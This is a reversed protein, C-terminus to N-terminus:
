EGVRTIWVRARGIGSGGGLPVITGALTGRAMVVSVAVEHVLRGPKLVAAQVLGPRLPVIRAVVTDGTAVVLTDVGNGRLGLAAGPEGAWARVVGATGPALSGFMGVAPAAALVGPDALVVAGTVPLLQHHLPQGTTADRVWLSLNEGYVPTVGLEVSGGPTVTSTVGAVGWGEVTVEVQGAVSEAVGTGVILSTTQGVPLALPTATVLLPRVIPLMTRHPLLDPGTVTLVLEGPEAPPDSLYITARGLEDTVASGLLRGPATLTVTAGVTDVQVAFVPVGVALTGAHSVELPRPRRTRVQLSCDGLINYQEVLQRGIEGPYNDLVKMIGHQCLAGIELARGSVLLDTTEEQMLTPPIWPTTTSASYMALAGRPAEPTGARLWAEAFCEPSSFRGNACSVDIIWPVRHDNALNAVEGLGFAPNSWSVGSGHGLYNMFSRGEDLAAIIAAATASPEYLRDVATFNYGLLDDRLWDAREADTPDGLISAVGVAHSYWAGDPDPDREYRVFKNLQVLLEDRDRASVRSVFLDPYLDDGQVMAYRTDNDAGEFLGAHTPVQDIDGVLVLYTLGAPEGYRTAVAASISEVTGGLQVTTAVEVTLGRERKWQVFETLDLEFEPATVVLMRGGTNVEAYKTVPKRDAFRRTALIEFVRDRGTARRRENVGGSGETVVELELRELVLLRGRDADWRLPHVTLGVGREGRLLYPRELNHGAAPYVGSAYSPGTARPVQLPDMTRPINGRSPLVPASALERWYESVIRLRPTGASPLRLQLTLRPLEPHGAELTPWTGPVGVRAFVRGEIEQEATFFGPVDVTVRTRGPAEVSTEIRPPGPPLGRPSVWDAAVAPVAGALLILLALCRTM